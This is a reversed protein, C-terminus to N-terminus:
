QRVFYVTELTDIEFNSRYPCIDIGGRRLYHACVLLKQFSTPNSQLLISNVLHFLEDACTEHFKNTDRQSIIHDWIQKLQSSKINQDSAIIITAFDPQNTVPCNSKSLNSYLICNPQHGFVKTIYDVFHKQLIQKFKKTNECQDISEYNQKIDVSQKTDNIFGPQIITSNNISNDASLGYNEDIFNDASLGCNEDLSIGLPEALLKPKELNLISLKVKDGLLKSLDNLIIQHIIARSKETNEAHTDFNNLSNLYLKLSKSEVIFESSRDIYLVGRAAVPIDYNLWFLEYLNWIEMGYHDFKVRPIIQLIKPAYERPSFINKGLHLESHNRVVSM